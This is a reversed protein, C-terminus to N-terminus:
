EDHEKTITGQGRREGTGIEGRGQQKQSDRLLLHVHVVLHLDSNRSDSSSACDTSNWKREQTPEIVRIPQKSFIFILSFNACVLEQGNAISVLFAIVVFFLFLKMDVPLPTAARFLFHLYTHSM